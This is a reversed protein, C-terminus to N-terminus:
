KSGQSNSENFKSCNELHFIANFISEKIAREDGTILLANSLSGTALDIHQNVKEAKIQSLRVLRRYKKSYSLM